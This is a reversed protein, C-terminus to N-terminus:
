ISPCDTRLGDAVGDAVRAVEGVVVRDSVVANVKFQVFSSWGRIRM